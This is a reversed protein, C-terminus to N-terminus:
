DSGASPWYRHRNQWINKAPELMDAPVSQHLVSLLVALTGIVAAEGYVDSKTQWLQPLEAPDLEAPKVQCKDLLAPLVAQGIQGNRRFWLSCDREPNVEVEGGDGRFCFVSSDNLRDAIKVHKEDFHRHFVGHVSHQAQSPNLMRALSNACSRLGFLARLQILQHLAPNIKQLPAYCMGTAKLQALAQSQTEAIEWGFHHWVQDMYLRQSDPEQSGHLFIRYGRQALAMIALLMWPQHRRKGAYCGIDLHPRSHPRSHAIAESVPRGTDSLGTDSLATDPVADPDCWHFQWQNAERCARLFGALEAETEERVRLLMLFAGRQEPAVRESLLLSMARYAQQESLTKGATKGRGIIQLFTKFEATNSGTIPQMASASLLVANDSM